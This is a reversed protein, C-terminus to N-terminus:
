RRSRPRTTKAEATLPKELVPRGAADFLQAEVNWGDLSGEGFVRLRPRIRLTADRYQEDLDTRVAFDRRNANDIAEFDVDPVLSRLQQVQEKAPMRTFALPDFSLAGLLGDLITQPKAYRAGDPAEVVIQPESGGTFFGSGGLATGNGTLRSM